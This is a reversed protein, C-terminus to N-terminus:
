QKFPYLAKTLVLSPSKDGKKTHSKSDSAPTEGLSLNTAPAPLESAVHDMLQPLGTLVWLRPRATRQMSCGWFERVQLKACNCGSM